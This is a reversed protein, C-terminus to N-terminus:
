SLVIAPIIEFNNEQLLTRPDSKRSTHKIEEPAFEKQGEGGLFEKREAGTSGELLLLTFFDQQQEM